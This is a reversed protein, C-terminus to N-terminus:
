DHAPIRSHRIQYTRVHALAVASDYSYKALSVPGGPLYTSSLKVLSGNPTISLMNIAGPDDENLCAVTNKRLSTDLWTPKHGCGYNVQITSLYRFVSQNLADKHLGLTQISGLASERTKYSAVLLHQLEASVM